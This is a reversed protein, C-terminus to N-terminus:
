WSAGAFHEHILKDKTVLGHSGASAHGVILRDFPDRTWSLELASHAVASFALPCLRIDFQVNLATAVEEAGVALRGIEHLFQLELVVAPSVLVTDTAPLDLAPNSILDRRGAYLWVAVHTDLYTVTAM